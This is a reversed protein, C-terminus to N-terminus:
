APVWSTDLIRRQARTRLWASVALSILLAGEIVDFFSPAVDAARPMVDAGYSLCGLFLAAPILGTVTRRALFVLAFAALGYEPNWGAQFTGKTSLVDNAGALAAIAGSVVLGGTVYGAVPILGHRAVRPSAGVITLEYGTVTRTLFWGLAVACVIAVIFGIHIRTDGISLLRSGRPITATQPTVVDPDALPGKTLLATLSIAIYNFMITTVIENIGFRGRLVAPILGWLAGAIAGAATAGIWMVPRGAGVLESAAVAAALAGVLVQGDIGINWVGTRVALLVACGAFLLPTARVFIEQLGNPRLFSREGWERYAVVPDHGTLTLVLAGFLLAVVIAVISDLYGHLHRGWSRHGIGRFRVPDGDVM